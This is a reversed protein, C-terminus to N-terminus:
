RLLALKNYPLPIGGDIGGKTFFWRVKVNPNTVVFEYPYYLAIRPLYKAIIVQAKKALEYIKTVNTSSMMESIIKQYEANKWPTGFAKFFWSLALPDNGDAGHGSIELDFNGRKVIFDVQKFSPVVKVQVCVGVRKLMNSIILAEQMYPKSTVLTPRWTEGGLERCGDGNVDKLGLSDLIESAKTPSYPYKEVNPNYFDSYPPVYSPTGPIAGELSGVARLVLEKLNLAYAIARRFEPLNYPYKNLNFGLFLVWYMPGKQVRVDPKARKIMEVVRWAKGMFTATDVKGQILAAATYQPSFLGSASVYLESYVPKPGWFLPNSKFLYGKGPEYKVLVYPGTGVYAKENIFKYPDKVNSWIHKPIIFVTSAYEDLFLPNPKKLVIVVTHPGKAYVKEIISLDKWPWKHQKMYEFTFVVDESTFPVGDSWTANRLHFIWVKPSSHEWSLALWPIISTQNKWVLTDFIFSTLVYGPGRKYFAFPTPAGWDGLAIRLPAAAVLPVLLLALVHASRM